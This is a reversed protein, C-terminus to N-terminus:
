EEVRIGRRERVRDLIKKECLGNEGRALIYAESKKKENM